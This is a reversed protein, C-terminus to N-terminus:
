SCRAIIRSSTCLPCVRLRVDDRHWSLFRDAPRRGDIALSTQEGGSWPSFKNLRAQGRRRNAARQSRSSRPGGVSRRKRCRRSRFGDSFQSPWSVATPDEENGRSKRQDLPAASAQSTERGGIESRAFSNVKQCWKRVAVTPRMGSGGRCGRGQSEVVAIPGVDIHGHVPLENNSSAGRAKTYQNVIVV